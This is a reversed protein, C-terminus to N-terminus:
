IPFITKTIKRVCGLAMNLKTGLSKNPIQYYDIDDISERILTLTMSTQQRLMTLEKKNKIPIFLYDKKM